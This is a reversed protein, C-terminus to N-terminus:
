KLGKGLRFALFTRIGNAMASAILINAGLTRAFRPNDARSGAIIPVVTVRYNKAIAFVLIETGVSGYTKLRGKDRLLDARFGKMGCLPDSVNSFYATLLGFVKEMLRAKKPRRGVVLDSDTMLRSIFRAIDRPDHQGDADLTVILQYGRELLFSLGFSLASDYGYNDGQTIVTAGSVKSSQSTSDTSGDDCVFVDGFKLAGGIVAGITGEENFAPILIAIQPTEV